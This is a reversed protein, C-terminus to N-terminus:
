AIKDFSQDESTTDRWRDRFAQSFFVANVWYKEIALMDCVASHSSVQEIQGVLYLVGLGPMELDTIGHAVRTRAYRLGAHSLERHRINSGIFGNEKDFQAVLLSKDRPEPRAYVYGFFFTGEGRGLFNLVM